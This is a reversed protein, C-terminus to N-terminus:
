HLPAVPWRGLDLNALVLMALLLVYVGTVALKASRSVSGVTATRTKTGSM